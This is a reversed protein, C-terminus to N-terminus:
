AAAGEGFCHPAVLRHPLFSEQLEQDSLKLVLVGQVRLLVVLEDSLERLEGRELLGDTDIFSQVLQRQLVLAHLVALDDREDALFGRYLPVDHRQTALSRDHWYGERQLVCRFFGRYLNAICRSSVYARNGNCGSCGASHGNGPVTLAVGAIRLRRPGVLDGHRRLVSFVTGHRQCLLAGSADVGDV